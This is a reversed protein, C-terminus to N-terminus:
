VQDRVPQQVVGGDVHDVSPLVAKQFRHFPDLIVNVLYAYMEITICHAAHNPEFLVGHRLGTSRCKRHLLYLFFVM